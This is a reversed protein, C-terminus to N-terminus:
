FHLSLRETTDSEKHGWPSYGVLSRRGHSEGAWFVPTPQGARRWPSEGVWTEQTAPLDKVTQAVLSSVWTDGWEVRAPALAKGAEDDHQRQRVGQDWQWVLKKKIKSSAVGSVFMNLIPKNGLLMHAICVKLNRFSIWIWCHNGFEPLGCNNSNNKLSKKLSTKPECCFQPFPIAIEWIGEAGM